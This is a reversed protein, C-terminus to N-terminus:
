WWLYDCPRGTGVEHRAQRRASAACYGCWFAADTEGRHALAGCAGRASLESARMAVRRSIASGGEICKGAPDREGWVITGEINRRRCRLRVAPRGIEPAPAPGQEYM